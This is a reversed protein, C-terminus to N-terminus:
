GYNSIENWQGRRLMILEVRRTKCDSINGNTAWVKQATSHSWVDSQWRRPPHSPVSFTQFSIYPGTGFPLNTNNSDGTFKLLDVMKIDKDSWLWKLHFFPGELIFTEKWKTPSKRSFWPEPLFPLRHVCRTWHGSAPFLPMTVKWKLINQKWAATRSLQDLGELPLFRALWLTKTWRRELCDGLIDGGPFNNFKVNSCIMLVIQNSICRM